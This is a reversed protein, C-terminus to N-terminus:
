NQSGQLIKFVSESPLRMEHLAADSRRRHRKWALTSTSNRTSPKWAHYWAPAPQPQTPQPLLKSCGDLCLQVDRLRFFCPNRVHVTHGSQAYAHHTIKAPVCHLIVFLWSPSQLTIFVSSTNMLLYQCPRLVYLDVAYWASHPRVVPLPAVSHRLKFSARLKARMQHRRCLSRPRCCCANQNRGQFCM